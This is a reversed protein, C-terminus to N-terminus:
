NVLCYVLLPYMGRKEVKIIQRFFGLIGQMKLISTTHRLQRLFSSVYKSMSTFPRIREKQCCDLLKIPRMWRYKNLLPVFCNAMQFRAPVLIKESEQYLMVYTCNSRFKQASLSHSGYKCNGIQHMELCFHCCSIQIPLDM